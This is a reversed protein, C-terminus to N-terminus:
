VGSGRGEVHAVAFLDIHIDVIGGCRWVGFRAM